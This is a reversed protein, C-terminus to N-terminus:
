RMMIALCFYNDSHLAIIKFKDQVFDKSVNKKIVYKTLPFIEALSLLCQMYM